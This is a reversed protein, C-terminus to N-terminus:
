ISKTEQLWQVISEHKHTQRPNQQISQIMKTIENSTFVSTFQEFQHPHSQIYNYIDDITQSLLGYKKYYTHIEPLSKQTKDAKAIKIPSRQRQPPQYRPFRSQPRPQRPPSQRPKPRPPSQRSPSRRPPSTKDPTGPKKPDFKELRPIGRPSKPHREKWKKFRKNAKSKKSKRSKHIIPSTPLSRLPALKRPPPSKRPPSKRPSRAKRVPSVHVYQPTQKRRLKPTACFGKTKAKKNGPVWVNPSHCRTSTTNYNPPATQITCYGATRVGGQKASGTIWINPLHCANKKTNPPPSKANPSIRRQSPSKKPSPSPSKKRSPSPTPPPTRPENVTACYGKTKAQKNGPVWIRPSGCDMAKTGYDPPEALTSCYGKTYPNRTGKVWIESSKCPM